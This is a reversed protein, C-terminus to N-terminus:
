YPPPAHDGGHSRHHENRRATGDAKRKARETKTENRNAKRETLRQRARRMKEAIAVM